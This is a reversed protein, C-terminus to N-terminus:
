PLEAIDGGDKTVLARRVNPDTDDALFRVSADCFLVTSGGPHNPRRGQATTNVFTQLDIDNPSMWPVADKASVEAVMLCAARRTAERAAQVAPLLLALLIGGCLLVM